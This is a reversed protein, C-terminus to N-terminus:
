NFPTKQRSEYKTLKNNTFYFYAVITYDSAYGGYVLHTYVFEYTEGNESVGSRHAEPWLKKFENIDMGVVTKEIRDPHAEELTKASGQTTSASACSNLLFTTVLLLVLIVINKKKM